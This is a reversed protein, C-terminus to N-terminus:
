IPIPVVKTVTKAQQGVSSSGGILAHLGFAILIVAALAEGLRLWTSGSTVLNAVTSLADAIKSLPDLAASAIGQPTDPGPTVGPTSGSAGLVASGIAAKLAAPMHTITAEAQAETYGGRMAPAWGNASNSPNNAVLYRGWADAQQGFQDLTPNNTLPYGYQRATAPEFQFPGMAGTSSTKVNQGFNTEQGYIGLLAGLPIKYKVAVDRLVGAQIAPSISLAAM